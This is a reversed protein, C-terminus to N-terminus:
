FFVYQLLSRIRVDEGDLELQVIGFGMWGNQVEVNWEQVVRGWALVRLFALDNLGLDADHFLCHADVASFDVENGCRVLWEDLYGDYGDLVHEFIDICFVKVQVGLVRLLLLKKFSGERQPEFLVKGIHIDVVIVVIAHFLATETNSLLFFKHQIRVGPSEEVEVIEKFSLSQPRAVIIVFFVIFFLLLIILLNFVIEISVARIGLLEPFV